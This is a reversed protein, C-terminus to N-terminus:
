LRSNVETGLNSLHFSPLTPQAFSLVLAKEHKDFSLCLSFLSFYSFTAEKGVANKGEDLIRQPKPLRVKNSAGIGTGKPLVHSHTQDM